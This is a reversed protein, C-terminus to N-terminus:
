SGGDGKIRTKEEPEKAEASLLIEDIGLDVRRQDVKYVRVPSHMYGLRGQINNSQFDKSYVGDINVYTYMMNTFPQAEEKSHIRIQISRSVVYNRYDQETAFLALVGNDVALYGTISMRLSSILPYVAALRAFDVNCTPQTRIRRACLVHVARDSSEGEAHLHKTPPSNKDSNDNDASDIAAGCGIGALLLTILLMLLKM